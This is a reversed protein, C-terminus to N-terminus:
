TNHIADYSPLSVTFGRALVQKISTTRAFNVPLGVPSDRGTTPRGQWAGADCLGPVEITHVPVWIYNKIRM